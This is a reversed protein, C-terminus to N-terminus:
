YRTRNTRLLLRCFPVLKIRDHAVEIFLSSGPAPRRAPVHELCFSWFFFPLSVARSLMPKEDFAKVSGSSLGWGRALVIRACFAVGRKRLGSRRIGGRSAEGALASTGSGFELCIGEGVGRSAICTSNKASTRTTATWEHLVRQWV